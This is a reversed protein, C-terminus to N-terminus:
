SEEESPILEYAKNDSNWELKGKVSCVSLRKVEEHHEESDWEQEYPDFWGDALATELPDETGCKLCYAGPWGSWHHHDEPKM